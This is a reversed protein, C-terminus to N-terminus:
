YDLLDQGLFASATNIIIRYNSLRAAMSENRKTLADIIKERGELEEKMEEIEVRQGEVLKSLRECEARYDITVCIDCNKEMDENEKVIEYNEPLERNWCAACREHGANCFGGECGEPRDINVLNDPCGEVGGIFQEGVKEPHIQAFLEKCTM